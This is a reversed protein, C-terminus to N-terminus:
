KENKARTIVRKKKGGQLHKGPCETVHNAKWCMQCFKLLIKTGYGEKDSLNCNMKATQRLM